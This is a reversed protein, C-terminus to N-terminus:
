RGDRTGCIARMFHRLWRCLRSLRTVMWGRRPTTEDQLASPNYLEAVRNDPTLAEAAPKGYIAGASRGAQSAAKDLEDRVQGTAKRFESLGHRWGPGLGHLWRAGFLVLVLALILVIEGTDLNFLALTAATTAVSQM